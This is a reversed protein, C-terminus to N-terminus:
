GISINGLCGGETDYINHESSFGWDVVIYDSDYYSQANLSVSAVGGNSNTYDSDSITPYGVYSVVFSLSVDANYIRADSVYTAAVIDTNATDAYLYAEASYGTFSVWPDAPNYSVASAFISTCSVALVIALVSFLKKNHKIFLNKM